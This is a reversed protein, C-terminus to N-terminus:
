QLSRTMSRAKKVLNIAWQNEPTDFLENSMLGIELIRTQSTHELLVLSEGETLFIREKVEHVM